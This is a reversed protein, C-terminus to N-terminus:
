LGSTINLPCLYHRIETPTALGLRSSPSTVGTGICVTGRAAAWVTNGSSAFPLNGDYAYSIAKSTGTPTGSLTVVVAPNGGVSTGFAVSSVTASVTSDTYVFGQGDVAAVWTSDLALQAATSGPPLQLPITIVAGSRYPAETPHKRLPNWTAGQRVVKDYIHGLMDGHVARGLETLHIAEKRTPFGSVTTGEWWQPCQYMPGACIVGIISDIGAQELRQPMATNYGGNNNTITVAIIPNAAQGTAAKIDPVLTGVLTAFLTSWGSSPGSEGQIINLMPVTVGTKGYAAAASVLRGLTTILNTYATQGSVFSSLPQGGYSVAHMIAGPTRVKRDRALQEQAFGTWASVFCGTAALQALPLLTTADSDALATESQIVVPSGSLAHNPKAATLYTATEGSKQVNSQGYFAHIELPASTFVPSATPSGTAPQTVEYTLLDADQVLALLRGSAAGRRVNGVWWQLSATTLATPALYLQEALYVQSAPALTMELRGAGDVALAATGFADTAIVEASTGTRYPTVGQLRLENVTIDIDGAPRLGFYVRGAADFLLYSYRHSSRYPTSPLPLPPPYTVPM